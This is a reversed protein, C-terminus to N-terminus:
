TTPLRRRAVEFCALAGAAAVNLSPLVGVQPIAVLVDARAKALRSIGSGESGLVLCLPETALELDFLSGPAGADLGVIWVGREKLDALASPIGPVLAMALHEVAGAAAKTVSPTVHTARHRPLVAGTAGAAEATRLLAGLNQPDTVGDLAVLFPPWGPRSRQSLEDLPVEPLPAAHALVGQPADSRAERDLRSPGVRRVTVKDDRALDLIEAVIPTEEDVGEAIWLDRVRRRRAALLERVAHRGEVQDGGLGARPSTRPAAGPTTRPPTRRQQDGRRGKPSM